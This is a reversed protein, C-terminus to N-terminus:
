GSMQEITMDVNHIGSFRESEEHDKNLSNNCLPYKLLTEIGLGRSAVMSELGDTDNMGYRLVQGHSYGLLAQTRDIGGGVGGGM